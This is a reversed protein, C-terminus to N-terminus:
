RELMKRIQMLDKPSLDNFGRAFMTVTDRQEDDLNNSYISISGIAKSAIARIHLDDQNPLQLFNLTKELFEQTLPKGGREVASTYSSPVGLADSMSKLTMGKDLRIKRIAIGYETAMM